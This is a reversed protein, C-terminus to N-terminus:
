WRRMASSNCVPSTIPMPKGAVGATSAGFRFPGLVHDWLRPLSRNLGQPPFLGKIEMCRFRILPSVLVDVTNEDLICPFACFLIEPAVLLHHIVKNKMWM